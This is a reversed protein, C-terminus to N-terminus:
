RMCGLWPGASSSVALGRHSAVLEGSAHAEASRPSGRDAIAPDDSTGFGPKLPGASSARLARTPFYMAFMLIPSVIWVWYFHDVGFLEGHNPGFIALAIRYLVLLVYLHVIYFFMPAQGFVVLARTFRNDLSEFWAMLLFAIGLSFLIFDLSPPYKTYNFFSMLTHVFDEGRVWPLTEGYINFGRLVLLLALCAM